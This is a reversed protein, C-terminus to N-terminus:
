LHLISRVSAVHDKSSALVSPAAQSVTLPQMSIQYVSHCLWMVAAHLIISAAPHSSQMREDIIELRFTMNRSERVSLSPLSLTLTHCHTLADQLCTVALCCLAALWHHSCAIRSLTPRSASLSLLLSCAVTHCDSTAFVPTYLLTAWGSHWTSCGSLGSTGLIVPLQQRTLSCGFQTPKRPSSDLVGCSCSSM